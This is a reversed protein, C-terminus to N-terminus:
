GTYPTPLPPQPSLRAQAYSGQSWHVAKVVLSVLLNFVQSLRKVLHLIGVSFSAEHEVLVGPRSIWSVEEAYKLTKDRLPLYSM